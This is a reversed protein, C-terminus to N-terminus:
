DPAGISLPSAAPAKLVLAAYWTLAESSRLCSFQLLACVFSGQQEDDCSLKARLFVQSTASAFPYGFSQEIHRTRRICCGEFRLRVPSARVAKDGGLLPLRLRCRHALRYGFYQHFISRRLRAHSNQVQRASRALWRDAQGRAYSRM